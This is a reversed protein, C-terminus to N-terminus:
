LMDNALLDMFCSGDEPPMIYIECRINESLKSFLGISLVFQSDDEIVRGKLANPIMKWGKNDNDLANHNKHNCYEVIAMFATEFYPLEYEFSEVLRSITDGIYNSVRRRINPLLTNLTIHLWGERTVEISGLIEKLMFNPIYGGGYFKERRFVDLDTRAKICFNELECQFDDICRETRERSECNLSVLNSLCKMVLAGNDELESVVRKFESM